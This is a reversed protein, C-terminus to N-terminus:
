RKLVQLIATRNKAPTEITINGTLLLRDYVSATHSCDFHQIHNKNVITSRSVRFCGNRLLVDEFESLNKRIKIPESGQIYLITYKHISQCYLIDKVRIPYHHSHCKLLINPCSHNKDIATDNLISNNASQTIVLKKKRNAIIKHISEKLEDRDIPQVLYDTVGEKIAQLTFSLGNAIVIVAFNREHAQFQHLIDFSKQCGPLDPNLFVIDPQQQRIVSLASEYCEGTGRVQVEDCCLEQLLNQLRERSDESKDIIVAKFIYPPIPQKQITQKM